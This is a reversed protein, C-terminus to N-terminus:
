TTWCIQPCGDDSSSARGVGASLRHVVGPRPRGRRWWKSLPIVHRGNITKAARTAGGAERERKEGSSSQGSATTAIAAGTGLMLKETCGVVIARPCAAMSVPLAFEAALQVALPAHIPLWGTLPVCVTVGLELPVAM